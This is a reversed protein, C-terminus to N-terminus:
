AAERVTTALLPVYQADPNDALAAALVGILEHLDRQWGPEEPRATVAQGRHRGTLPFPPLGAAVASEPVRERAAQWEQRTVEADSPVHELRGRGHGPPIVEAIKRVRWPRTGQPAPLLREATLEAEFALIAAVAQDGPRV